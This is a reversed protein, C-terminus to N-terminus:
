TCPYGNIYIKDSGIGSKINDIKVLNGSIDEFFICFDETVGILNKVEGYEMSNLKIVKEELLENSELLNIANNGNTVMDLVLEAEKTLDVPSNVARFVSFVSLMLLFVIATNFNLWNNRKGRKKKTM